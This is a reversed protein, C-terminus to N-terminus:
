GETYISAVQSTCHDVVRFFDRGHLEQNPAVDHAQSHDDFGASAVWGGVCVCVFVCMCLFM